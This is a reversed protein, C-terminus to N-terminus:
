GIFFPVYPNVMTSAAAVGFCSSFPANTTSHAPRPRHTRSRKGGTTAPWRHFTGVERLSLNPAM